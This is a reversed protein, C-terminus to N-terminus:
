DPQDPRPGPESESEPEAQSEAGSEVEIVLRVLELEDGRLLEVPGGCHPCALIPAIFHWSPGDHYKAPGRYNCSRSRCLVESKVGEILLQSGELATGTSLVRYAQRLAEDELLRLEGKRLHVERVRVVLGDAAGEGRVGVREDLRELVARILEEAVAYEHM